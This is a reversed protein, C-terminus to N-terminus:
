LHTTLSPSLGDVADHTSTIVSIADLMDLLPSGQSVGDPSSCDEEACLFSWSQAM